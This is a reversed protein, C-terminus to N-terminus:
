TRPLAHWINLPKASAAVQLLYLIFFVQEKNTWICLFNPFMKTQGQGEGVHASKNLEHLSRIRNNYGLKHCAALVL